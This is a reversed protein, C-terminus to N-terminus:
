AAGKMRADGLFGPEACTPALLHSLVARVAEEREDERQTNHFELWAVQWTLAGAVDVSMGIWAEADAPMTPAEAAATPFGMAEARTLRAVHVRQGDALGRLM